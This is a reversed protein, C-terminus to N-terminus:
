DLNDILLKNDKIIYTIKIEGDEKGYEKITDSIIYKKIDKITGEGNLYKNLDKTDIIADTNQNLSSYYNLVDYPNDVVLKDFTAVFNNTFSKGVSNQSYKIIKKNSIDKKTMVNNYNYENIDHTIGEEAMKNTIGIKELDKIKYNVNFYKNITKLVEDDSFSNKNNKDSLYKVAFSIYKGKDDTDVVEDLYDSIESNFEDIKIKELGSLRRNVFFLVVGSIVLLVIVIKFVLVKNKM